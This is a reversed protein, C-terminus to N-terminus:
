TPFATLNVEGPIIQRRAPSYGVFGGTLQTAEANLELTISGKQFISLNENAYDIKLIHGDFFGNSILFSVPVAQGNNVQIATAKGIIKRGQRQLKMSFDVTLVLISGDPHKQTFAGRWYPTILGSMRNKASRPYKRQETVYQYILMMLTGAITFAGETIGTEM